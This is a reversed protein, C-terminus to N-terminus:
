QSKATQRRRLVFGGSDGDDQRNLEEALARLRDMEETSRAPLPSRMQEILPIDQRYAESALFQGVDSDFFHREVELGAKVALREMARVTPIVLHRPADLAYWNECYTRWAYGGAVPLRILARGDHELHRAIEHMAGVPDPMHEFSHHMMILDYRGDDEALSRKHVTVGGPHEITSVVFPDLGSVQRFGDRHMKLLLAGGGCGVDVIRSGTTLRMGAFWDFYAPRRRSMRAFLGGLVNGSGLWADSRWRRFAIQVASAPKSSAGAFSYYDSPYHRDLDPPVQAIQITGCDSCEFYDFSERTGFYMERVQFHQHGRDAACIRCAQDPTMNERNM